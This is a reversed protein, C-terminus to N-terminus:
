GVSSRLGVKWTMSLATVLAVFGLVIPITFKEQPGSGQWIAAPVLSFNGFVTFGLLAWWSWREARRLPILAVTAAMACFGLQSFAALTVHFRAHDPWSADFGHRPLGDILGQLAVIGAMVVFIWASINLTRTSTDGKM